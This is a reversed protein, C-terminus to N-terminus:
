ASLLLKFGGHHKSIAKQIDGRGLQSLEIATPMM